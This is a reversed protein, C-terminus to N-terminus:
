KSESVVNQSQFMAVCKIKDLQNKKTKNKKPKKQNTKRGDKQKWHTLWRKELHIIYDM